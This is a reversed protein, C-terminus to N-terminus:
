FSMEDYIRSLDGGWEGEYLNLLRHAPSIGSEVIDRLPNLFATENEGMSNVEGRASLGAHAIEIVDRGLAALDRGGSIPSCLGQKPV